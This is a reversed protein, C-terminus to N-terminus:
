QAPVETTVPLFAMEVGMWLLRVSAPPVELMTHRFEISAWHMTLESPGDIVVEVDLNLVQPDGAQPESFNLRPRENTNGLEIEGSVRLIPPAAKGAMAIAAKWGRTQPVIDGTM